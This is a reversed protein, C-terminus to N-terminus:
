QRCPGTSAWASWLRWLARPKEREAQRADQRDDRSEDYCPGDMRGHSIIVFITHAVAMAATKRGRRSEWRRVTRGIFTPTKRAAWAGQGRVRRLYRNGQGTRGQRRKGAREDTGPAGGAWSWLRKASGFRRRDTGIAAILDRATSAKIGPMSQRLVLHPTLAATAHRSQGALAASQRERLERLERAGRRWRGQPETCQGTLAGALAPWQRRLPGLALAALKHPTREGAWFAKRRRRGSTGCLASM